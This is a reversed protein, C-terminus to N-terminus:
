VRSYNPVHAIIKLCCSTNSPQLGPGTLQWIIPQCSLVTGVHWWSRGSDVGFLATVGAVGAMVTRVPAETDPFNNAKTAYM